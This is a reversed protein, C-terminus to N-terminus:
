RLEPKRDVVPSDSRAVPLDIEVRLRDLESAVQGARDADQEFLLSRARELAEIAGDRRGDRELIRALVCLATAESLSAGARGCFRIAQRAYQKAKWLDGAEAEIECLLACVEGVGGVALQGAYKWLADEAFTRAEDVRERSFSLSGLLQLITAEAWEDGQARSLVLAQHYYSGARAYEFAKQYAEGARFLFFIELGAEGIERVLSLAREHSDIGMQTNGTAVLIRAGTHLCSAIGSKQDGGAQLYAIHASHVYHEANRYEQRLLHTHGIQQMLDAATAIAPEGLVKAAALGLHLSALMEATM